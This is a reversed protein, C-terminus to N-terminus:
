TVRRAKPYEIVDPYKEKYFVSRYYGELFKWLGEEGGNVLCYMADSANLSSGDYYCPKNGILDCKDSVTSQGKYLPKPSHFGLDTPMPYFEKHEFVLDRHWIKNPKVYQPLWGTSLKFQVAGKKGIVCFGLDMGHLGHSGGSGPKCKEQDFKCEFKICDYGSIFSVKRQLRM